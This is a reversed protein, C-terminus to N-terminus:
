FKLTMIGNKCGFGGQVLGWRDRVKALLSWGMEEIEDEREQPVILQTDSIPEAPIDMENLIKSMWEAKTEPKPPAVPEQRKARMIRAAVVAAAYVIAVGSLTKIIKSM